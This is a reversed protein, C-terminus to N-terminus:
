ERSKMWERKRLKAREATIAEKLGKEGIYGPYLTEGILFAPTGTIGLSRGVANIEHLTQDIDPAQVDEQMKKVDLGLKQAMQSLTKEDKQGHYSMLMAHMPLYRGQKHAALAWRAALISDESLVPFDRFVFRIENDQRLLSKIDSFARMCYGCNYDFFEVVTIDAKPNGAFPVSPGHLVDETVSGDQAFVSSFSWLVVVCSILIGRTLNSSYRM